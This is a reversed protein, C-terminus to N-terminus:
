RPHRHKRRGRVNSANIKWGTPTARFWTYCKGDPGQVQIKNVPRPKMSATPPRFLGGGGATGGEGGVYRVIDTLVDVGSPPASPLSPGAPGYPMTQMQGPPRGPRPAPAPQGLYGGLLGIGQQVLDWPDPLSPWGWGGGTDVSIPDFGGQQNIGQFGMQGYPMAVGLSPPPTPLPVPGPQPMRVRELAAVRARSYRELARRQADAFQRARRQNQADRFISVAARLVVRPDRIDVSRPTPQPVRPRPPQQPPFAPFVPRRLPGMEASGPLPPVNLSPGGAGPLAPTNLSGGPAPLPGPPVVVPPIEPPEPEPAAAGPPGPPGPEGQPGQEGIISSVGAAILENVISRIVQEFIVDTPDPFDGGTGQLGQIGQIGPAGREGVDGQPGQTGAFGRPGQPGPMADFARAQHVVTEFHALCNVPQVGCANTCMADPAFVEPATEAECIIDSATKAIAPRLAIGGSAPLCWRPSEPVPCTIGRHVSDNWNIIADFGPEGPFAGPCSGLLGGVTHPFLSLDPCPEFHPV